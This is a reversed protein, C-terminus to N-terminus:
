NKIYVHICTYRTTNNDLCVGYKGSVSISISSIQGAGTPNVCDIVVGTHSVIVCSVHTCVVSYVSYLYLSRYLQVPGTARTIVISVVLPTYLLIYM